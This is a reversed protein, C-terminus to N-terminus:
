RRDFIGLSIMKNLVRYDEIGPVNFSFCWIILDKITGGLIPSIIGSRNFFRASPDIRRVSDLYIGLTNKFEVGSPIEVLSRLNVSFNNSFIVGSPISELWSLDINDRGKGVILRGESEEYPYSKEKLMRKFEEREMIHRYSKEFTLDIENWFFVM